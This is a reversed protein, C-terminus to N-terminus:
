VIVEVIKDFQSNLTLLILALDKLVIMTSYNLRLFSNFVKFFRQNPTPGPNGNIVIQRISNWQELLRVREFNNFKFNQGQQNNNFIEMLTVQSSVELDNIPFKIFEITILM